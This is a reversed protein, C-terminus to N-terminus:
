QEGNGTGQERETANLLATLGRHLAARDDPDLRGALTGLQGNGAAHLERLLRRGEPTLAVRVVRRDRADNTRHVWGQQELRDLIGTVNPPSVGLRGALWSVPASGHRGLLMVVKLQPMTLHLKAWADAGDLLTTHLISSLLGAVDDPREATDM